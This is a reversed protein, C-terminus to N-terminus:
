KGVEKRKRGYLDRGDDEVSVDEEEIGDGDQGKVAKSSTNGKKVSKELAELRKSVKEEFSEEGSEQDGDSGKGKQSEDDGSGGSGDPEVAKKLVEIEDQLPKIATKVAENVVNVLEEQNM